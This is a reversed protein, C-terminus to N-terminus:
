SFPKPDMSVERYIERIKDSPTVGITDLLVKELRRFAAVAEGRRGLRHYSIMLNRCIAESAPDIELAKQFFALAREDEGTATFHRGTNGLTALIKNRMRDRCGSTWPKAEDEPLFDGKDIKVAKEVRRISDDTYGEASITKEISGLLNKVAWLDVWCR